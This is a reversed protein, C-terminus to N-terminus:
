NNSQSSLIKINLQEELMDVIYDELNAGLFCIIRALEDTKELGVDHCFEKILNEIKDRLYKETSLSNNILFTKQGNINVVAYDKESLTKAYTMADHTNSFETPRVTANAELKSITKPRKTDPQM